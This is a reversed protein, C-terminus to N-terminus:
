FPLKNFYIIIAFDFASSYKDTWFPLVLFSIDASSSNDLIKPKFFGGSYMSAYSIELKDDDEITAPITTNLFPRGNLFAYLRNAM